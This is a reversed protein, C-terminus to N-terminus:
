PAKLQVRRAQLTEELSARNTKSPDVWARAIGEHFSGTAQKVCEIRTVINYARLSCAQCDFGVIPTEIQQLKARPIACRPSVGLTHNSLQCVRSDIRQILNM